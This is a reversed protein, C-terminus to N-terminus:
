LGIMLDAESTGQTLYSAASFHILDASMTDANYDLLTYGSIPAGGGSTFTLLTARCEDVNAQPRVAPNVDGLDERVQVWFVPLDSRSLENRLAAIFAQATTSFSSNNWTGVVVDNTGLRITVGKFNPNRYGAQALKPMAAKVYNTVYLAFLDANSKSWDNGSGSVPLLFAGGVGLKLVAAKKKTISNIRHCFSYDTGMNNYPNSPRAFGPQGNQHANYVEWAGNDTTTLDGKYYILVNNKDELYVPDLDGPETAAGRENSDGLRLYVDINNFASEKKESVVRVHGFQSYAQSTCLWLIFLTVIRM